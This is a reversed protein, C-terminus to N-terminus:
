MPATSVQISVASPGSSIMFHIELGAVVEIRTKIM